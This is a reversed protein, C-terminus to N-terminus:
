SGWFCFVFIVFCIVLKWFFFFLSFVSIDLYFSLLLSMMTSVLCIYMIIIFIVFKVLYVIGLGWWGCLFCSEERCILEFLCFRVAKYVDERNWEERVIFFTM